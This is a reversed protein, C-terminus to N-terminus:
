AKKGLVEIASGRIASSRSSALFLVVEVAEGVKIMQELGVTVAEERGIRERTKDTDTMGLVVANVYVGKDKVEENLTRTMAIMGAKAAAYATFTPIPHNVASSAINIIHGSRRRIMGPIVYRTCYFAGNLGVGIQKDWDEPEMNELNACVYHMANNVLIDVEGFSQEVELIRQAVLASDQIDCIFGLCEADIARISQVADELRNPNLAFIVIRAGQRAFAKAIGLGLGRSGGTILVTKNEFEAGLISHEKKM